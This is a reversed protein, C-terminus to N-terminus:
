KITTFNYLPKIFDINLLHSLITVFTEVHVLFSPLKM